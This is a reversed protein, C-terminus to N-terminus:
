HIENRDNIVPHWHVNSTIFECKIILLTYNRQDEEGDGFIYALHMPDSGFHIVWFPKLDGVSPMVYM